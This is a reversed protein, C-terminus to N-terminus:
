DIHNQNVLAIVAVPFSEVTRIRVPVAVVLFREVEIKELNALHEILPIDHTFLLRHNPQDAIGRQEIGSIDVGLCAIGRSVLWEVAQTEMYPRTRSLPTRYNKSLGFRLFVIDGERINKGREMIEERTVAEGAKKDTFDVLCCEGALRQISLQSIDKGEKVYHYPAEIHTGVHSWMKLETMIYWSGEPRLAKYEEVFEDVFRTDSELLYEEKFPVLDHSLEIVQYNDM